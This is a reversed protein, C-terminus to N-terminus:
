KKGLDSKKQPEPNCSDAKFNIESKLDGSSSVHKGSSLHKFGGKSFYKNSKNAMTAKNQDEKEPREVKVFDYQSGRRM